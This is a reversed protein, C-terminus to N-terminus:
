QGETTMDEWKSITHDTVPTHEVEYLEFEIECEGGNMEFVTKAIKEAFERDDNISVNDPGYFVAQSECPPYETELKDTFVKQLGNYIDKLKGEKIGKVRIEPKIMRSM